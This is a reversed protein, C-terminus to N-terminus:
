ELATTAAEVAAEPIRYPESEGDWRFASWVDDIRTRVARLAEDVDGGEALAPPLTAGVLEDLSETTPTSSEGVHRFGNGPDGADVVPAHSDGTSQRVRERATFELGVRAYAKRDEPLHEGPAGATSKGTWLADPGDVLDVTVATVDGPFHDDAQLRGLSTNWYHYPDALAADADDPPRVTADCPASRFRGDAAANGGGDGFRNGDYPTCCEAVVSLWPSLDLRTTWEVSAECARSVTTEGPAPSRAIRLTHFVSFLPSRTFECTRERTEQPGTAWGEPEPGSM